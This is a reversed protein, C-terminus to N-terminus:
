DEKSPATASLRSVIEKSERLRTQARANNPELEVVRGYAEVADEFRGSLRLDDALTMWGFAFDPGVVTARRFAELAEGRKGLRKLALGLNSYVYAEGPQLKSAENYHAVAEELRNERAFLNALNYHADFGHEGLEIVKRYEEVAEGVQGHDALARALNYRASAMQADQQIAQRYHQIAGEHDGRELLLTGLANHTSPSRPRHRLATRFHHIAKEAQGLKAYSQGAHYHAPAWNPAQRLANEFHEAAEAFRGLEFLVQAYNNHASWLTPKLELARRYRDLAEETRGVGHLLTALNNHGKYLSSDLRTATQYDEIAGDIQGAAKRATGRAFYPEASDPALEIMRAYYTESDRWFSLQKRTGATGLGTVVLVGIIITKSRVSLNVGNEHRLARSLVYGIVMLIGISPFYAFKDYAVGKAFGVIGLTPFIAVLFIAFGVWLCQTGLASIVLGVILGLVVIVGWLVASNALSIPDPAPYFSILNTPRVLKSIHFGLNHCVLLVTRFPDDSTPVTVGATAGQSGLTIFAFIAALILFPIKEKLANERLRRLPWYDLLLLIIPLPLVTPKSLLAPIFAALAAYYALGRRSTTFQLYFNLSALAFTTALLTKRDSIWTVPEVALPHVCFLLAALFAAWVSRFLQFVFLLILLTNFVHLWVNTRHFPRLNGPRGGVAHDLMLSIMTLPQYYGPVTSPKLVEAFFRGASAWSPNQVLENRHVYNEDDVAMVTSSLGPWYLAWVTATLFVAALGLAKASRSTHILRAGRAVAPRSLHEVPEIIVSPGIGDGRRFGPDRTERGGALPNSRHKRRKRSM